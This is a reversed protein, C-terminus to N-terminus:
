SSKARETASCEEGCEYCQSDLSMWAGQDCGCEDRTVAGASYVLVVSDDRLEERMTTWLQPNAGGPSM